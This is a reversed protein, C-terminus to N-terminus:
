SIKGGKLTQAKCPGASTMFPIGKYTAVLEDNVSFDKSARDWIRKKVIKELQVGDHGAVRVRDGIAAGEPPTIFETKTKDANSACLVMANSTYGGMPKPESNCWCIVRAGQVEELPILGVLGSFVTRPKDDGLDIEELYLKDAKPHKEAKVIKGVRFDLKSMDDLDPAPQGKKQKAKAPAPKTEGEGKPAGKDGGSVAAPQQKGDAHSPTNHQKNDTSNEIKQSKPKKAVVEKKDSSTPKSSGETKAKKQKPPASLPANLAFSIQELGCSLVGHQHQIFDFWRVLCPFRLQIEPSMDKVLSHISTWIVIDAVSLHNSIFFVKDMLTKNLKGQVQLKKKEDGLCATIDIKAYEIWTHVEAKDEEKVALKKVALSNLVEETMEHEGEKVQISAGEIAAVIKASFSLTSAFDM